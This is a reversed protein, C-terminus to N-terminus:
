DPSKRKTEHLRIVGGLSFTIAYWVFLNDATTFNQQLINRDFISTIM